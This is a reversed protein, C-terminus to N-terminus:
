EKARNHLDKLAAYYHFLRWAEVYTKSEDYHFSYPALGILVYRVGGRKKNKLAIKAIQCDYYLDQSARGFNFLKYKFQNSDLAFSTYSMGTAFMEFDAAHEEYYNMARAIMFPNNGDTALYIHVFKNKPLGAARIAVLLIRM